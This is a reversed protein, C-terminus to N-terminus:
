PCGYPDHACGYQWAELFGLFCAVGVIAAVVFFWAVRQEGRFAHAVFGGSLIGWAFPLGILLAPGLFMLIVVPVTLAAVLVLRVAVAAPKTNDSATNVM